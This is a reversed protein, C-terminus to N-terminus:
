SADRKQEPWATEQLSKPLETGERALVVRATRALVRLDRWLSWGRVYELDLEIRAAWPIGNRGNVQAWGTIGPRMALRGRQREDYRAVHHPLDPRPGVFSMDGKLVNVLQPLEDLSTRRLFRGARTIRPDDRYCYTGLPSRDAGDVMTRFKYITFIRGDRGARRQRFIAGGPSDARVAAAVALMVPSLAGLLVAAGAVDLARKLALQAARSREASDRM